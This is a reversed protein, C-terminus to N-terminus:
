YKKIIYEKVDDDIIVSESQKKELSGKVMSLVVNEELYLKEDKYNKAFGVHLTRKDNEGERICVYLPLSNKRM